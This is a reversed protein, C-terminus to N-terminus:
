RLDLKKNGCNCCQMHVQDNVWMKRCYCHECKHAPSELELYPMFFRSPQHEPCYTHQPESHCCQGICICCMM